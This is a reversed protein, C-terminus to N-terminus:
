LSPFPHRGADGRSGGSGPPLAPGSKPNGTALRTLGPVDLLPLPPVSARFGDGPGQESRGLVSFRVRRMPTPSQDLERLLMICLLIRLSFPRNHLFATAFSLSEAMRSSM